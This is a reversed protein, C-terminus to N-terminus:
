SRVERKALVWGPSTPRFGLCLDDPFLALQQAPSPADFPQAEALGRDASAARARKNTFGLTAKPEFKASM